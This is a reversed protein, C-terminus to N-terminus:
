DEESDSEYSPQSALPSKMTSVRRSKLTARVKIFNDNLDANQEVSISNTTHEIQINLAASKRRTIAATPGTATPSLSARRVVAEMLLSPKRGSPSMLPPFYDIEDDSSMTRGNLQIVSGNLSSANSGKGKEEITLTDYLGKLNLPKIIQMKADDARFLNVPPPKGIALTETKKDSQFDDTKSTAVDNKGNLPLVIIETVTTTTVTEKAKTVGEAPLLIDAAAGDIVEITESVSIHSTQAQVHSAVVIDKSHGDDDEGDNGNRKTEEHLLIPRTAETKALSLSLSQGSADSRAKELDAKANAGASADTLGTVQQHDIIDNASSPAAETPPREHQTAAIPAHDLPPLPDDVATKLVSPQNKELIVIKTPASTRPVGTKAQSAGCGM